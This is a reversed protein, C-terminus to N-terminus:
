TDAKAPAPGNVVQVASTTTGNAADGPAVGPLSQKRVSGAHLLGIVTEKTGPGPVIM